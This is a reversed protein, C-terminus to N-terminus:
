SVAFFRRSVMKRPGFHHYRGYFPGVYPITVGDDSDTGGRASQYAASMMAGTKILLPHPEFDKRPAWPDGTPTIKSSFSIALDTRFGLRFAAIGAAVVASRASAIIKDLWQVTQM